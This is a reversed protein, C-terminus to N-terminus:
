CISVRIDRNLGGHDIVYWTLSTYSKMSQFDLPLFISGYLVPQLM